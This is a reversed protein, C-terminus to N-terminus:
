SGTTKRDMILYISIARNLSKLFMLQKQSKYRSTVYWTIGVFGGIVFVGSLIWQLWDIEKLKKVLAAVVENSLDIGFYVAGLATWVAALGLGTIIAAPITSTLITRPNMDGELGAMEIEILIQYGKLESDTYQKLFNKYLAINGIDRYIASDFKPEVYSRGNNSTKAVEIFNRIESILKVDAQESFKGKEFQKVDDIFRYFDSIESIWKNNSDDKIEEVM